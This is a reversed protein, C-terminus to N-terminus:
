FGSDDPLNIDLVVLNPVFLHFKERAIAATEAAEVEYNNFRLFRTILHRIAPDDDVVLIRTTAVVPAM